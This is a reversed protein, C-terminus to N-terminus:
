DRGLFLARFREEGLAKSTELISVMPILILLMVLAPAIIEILPRGLWDTISEAVSQTHFLGVVIEELLNFVILMLLFALSKWVIRHVLTPGERRDGVRIAEGILLFKGIVLAKILAAGHQITSISHEPAMAAQYMMLVSFCVYLYLSIFGYKRMEAWFRDKLSPKASETESNVTQQNRTLRRNLIQRHLEQRGHM